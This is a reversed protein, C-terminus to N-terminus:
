MKNTGDRLREAGLRLDSGERCRSTLADDCFPQKVRCRPESRFRLLGLADGM